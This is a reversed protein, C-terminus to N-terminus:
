VARATAEEQLLQYPLSDAVSVNDYTIVVDEPIDETVTAGQTLGMPVLRERRATDARDILGYVTFGGEGDLVDGPVLPRKAAAIVDATKTIAAGCTQGFIMMRAATIPMEHGIFHQPRYIM